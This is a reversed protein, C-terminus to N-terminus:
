TRIRRRNGRAAAAAAAIAILVTKKMAIISLISHLTIRREAVRQKRKREKGGGRGRSEGGVGDGGIEAAAVLHDGGVEIVVAAGVQDREGAAHAFEDPVFVGAPLAVHEGGADLRM